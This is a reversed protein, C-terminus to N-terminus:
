LADIKDYNIEKIQFFPSVAGFGMLLLLVLILGVGMWFFIDKIAEDLDEDHIVKAYALIWLLPFPLFAAGYDSLWSPFWLVPQGAIVCWHGAAANALTGFVIVLVQAIALRIANRLRLRIM